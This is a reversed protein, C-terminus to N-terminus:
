KKMESQVLWSHFHPLHQKKHEHLTKLVKKQSETERSSANGNHVPANGSCGMNAQRVVLSLDEFCCSTSKDVLSQRTDHQEQLRLKDLVARHLDARLRNSLAVLKDRDANAITLDATLDFPPERQAVQKRSPFQRGASTQRPRGHNKVESGKHM